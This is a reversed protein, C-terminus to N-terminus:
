EVEDPLEAKIKAIGNLWQQKIAEDQTRLFKMGLHDTEAKYREARQQSIAANRQELTPPPPLAAIEEPTLEIVLTEGTEVNYEIRNMALRLRAAAM